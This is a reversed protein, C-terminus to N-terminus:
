NNIWRQLIDNPLISNSSVQEIEQKQPPLPAPPPPIPTPEFPSHSHLEEPIKPTMTEPLITQETGEMETSALQKTEAQRKSRERLVEERLERIQEQLAAIEEHHQATTEAKFLETDSNLRTIEVQRALLLDELDDARKNQNRLDAIEQQAQQLDNQLYLLSSEQESRLLDYKNSSDSLETHLVEINRELEEKQIRLTMGNDNEEQMARQEVENTRLKEKFSDLQKHLNDLEVSQIISAQQDSHILEQQSKTLDIKLKECEELSQNLAIKIRAYAADLEEDRTTAHNGSENLKLTANEAALQQLQEQQDTLMKELMPLRELDHSSKDLDKQSAQLDRRMLSLEEIQGSLHSIGKLKLASKETILQEIEAQKEQLNNELDNIKAQLDQKDMLRTEELHNQLTKLTDQILSINTQLNNITLQEENTNQIVMTSPKFRHLRLALFMIATMLICSFFALYYVLRNQLSHSTPTLSSPDKLSPASRPPLYQNQFSEHYWSLYPNNQHLPGCPWPTLEDANSIGEAQHASSTALPKAASPPTPTPALLEEKPASKPLAPVRELVQWGTKPSFNIYSATFTTHLSDTGYEGAVITQNSIRLLYLNSFTNNPALGKPFLLKKALAFNSATLDPLPAQDTKLDLLNPVIIIPITSIKLDGSLKALDHDNLTICGNTSNYSLPKNTGHIYIGNGKRNDLTDFVNPFNLHFARTGFVTVKKDIYKKTIFYIGEPTKEDGENTKRGFNEGTAVRYESTVHLRGDHRLVKLGHSDKEVLILSIPNAAIFVKLQLNLLGDVTTGPSSIAPRSCILTIIVLAWFFPTIHKHM